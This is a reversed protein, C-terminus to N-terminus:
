NYRLSEHFIEDKKMVERWCVNVFTCEYMCIAPMYKIYSIYMDDEGNSHHTKKIGCYRIMYLCFYYHVARMSLPEKFSFLSKLLFEIVNLM